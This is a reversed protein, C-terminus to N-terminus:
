PRHQLSLRHRYSLALAGFLLIALILGIDSMTPVPATSTAAYGTIVFAGVIAESDCTGDTIVHLENIGSTLTGGVDFNQYQPGPSIYGSSAIVSGLETGNLTITLECTTGNWMGYKFELQAEGSTPLSSTFYQLNNNAFIHDALEGSNWLEDGPVLVGLPQAASNQASQKAAGQTVGEVTQAVAGQTFAIILVALLLNRLKATM